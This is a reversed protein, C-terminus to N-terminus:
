GKSEPKVLNGTSVEFVPYPAKRITEKVKGVHGFKRSHECIWCHVKKDDHIVGGNNKFREENYDPLDSKNRLGTGNCYKCDIWNGTEEEFWDHGFCYVKPFGAKKAKEQYDNPYDEPTNNGKQNTGSNEWHNVFPNSLDGAGPACPSCFGAYTYYPSLEIFIDTDDGSQFCKYGAKEYHFALPEEPFASEAGFVKKCSECYYDESEYEAREWNEMSKPIISEILVGSELQTTKVELEKAENGCDPCTAKGYDAESEDVWIQLVENQSIVGFRIGTEKDINSLGMGYDIGAYNGKSM